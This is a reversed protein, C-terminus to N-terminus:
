DHVAVDAALGDVPAVLGHRAPETFEAGTRPTGLTIQQLCVIVCVAHAAALLPVMTNETSEHSLCEQDLIVPSTTLLHKEVPFLREQGLGLGIHLPFYGFPGALLEQLLHEGLPCVEVPTEPFEVDGDIIELIAFHFADLCGTGDGCALTWHIVTSAEQAVVPLTADTLCLNALIAVLGLIFAVLTIGVVHLRHFEELLIGLGAGCTSGEDGLNVATILHPTGL